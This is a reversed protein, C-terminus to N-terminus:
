DLFYISMRDIELVLVEFIDLSELAYTKIIELEQDTDM